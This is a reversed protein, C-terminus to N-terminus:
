AELRVRALVELTIKRLVEISEAEAQASFHCILASQALRTEDRAVCYSRSPCRSSDHRLYVAEGATSFLHIDQALLPNFLLRALRARKKYLNRPCASKHYARSSATLLLGQESVSLAREPPLPDRKKQCDPQVHWDHLPFPEPNFDSRDLLISGGHGRRPRPRCDAM